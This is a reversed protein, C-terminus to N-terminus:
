VTNTNCLNTEAYTETTFFTQSRIPRQEKNEDCVFDPLSRISSLLLVASWYTLHRGLASIM